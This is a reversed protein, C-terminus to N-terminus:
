ARTKPHIMINILSRWPMKLSIKHWRWGVVTSRMIFLAAFAWRTLFITVPRLFRRTGSRHREVTLRRSRGRQISSIVETTSVSQRHAIVDILWDIYDGSAPDESLIARNGEYFHILDFYTHANILGPMLVHGPHEIELAGEYKKVLEDRTGIDQIKGLEVAIAGDEIPEDSNNLTLVYKASIIEMITGQETIKLRRPRLLLLFARVAGNRKKTWNVLGFGWSISM